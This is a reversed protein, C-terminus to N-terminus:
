SVQLVKNLMQSDLVWEEETPTHANLHVEFVASIKFLTAPTTAMMAGGATREFAGQSSDTPHGRWHQHGVNQTNGLVVPPRMQPASPPPSLFQVSLVELGRHSGINFYELIQRLAKHGEVKCDVRQNQLLQTDVICRIHDLTVRGRSRPIRDWSELSPKESISRASGWASIETM